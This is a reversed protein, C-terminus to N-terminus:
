LWAESVVPMDGNKLMYPWPGTHCHSRVGRGRGGVIGIVVPGVDRGLGQGLDVIVQPGLHATGLFAMGRVGVFVPKGCGAEKRTILHPQVGLVDDGAARGPLQAVATKTGKLHEGVWAEACRVGSAEAEGGGHFYVRHELDRRQLMSGIIRERALM